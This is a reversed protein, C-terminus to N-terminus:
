VPLNFQTTRISFFMRFRNLSKIQMLVDLNFFLARSPFFVDSRFLVMRMRVVFDSNACPRRFQPFYLHLKFHTTVQFTYTQSIPILWPTHNHWHTHSVFMCIDSLIHICAQTQPHAMAKDGYEVPRSNRSLQICDFFSAFYQFVPIM